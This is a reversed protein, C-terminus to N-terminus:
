CCLLGGRGKAEPAAGRPNSDLAGDAVPLPCRHRNSDHHTAVARAIHVRDLFELTQDAFERAAQGLVRQLAAKQLERSRDEAFSQVPQARACHVVHEGHRPHQERGAVDLVVHRRHEVGIGGLVAHSDLEAAIEADLWLQEGRRAIPDLSREGGPVRVQRPCLGQERHDAAAGGIGVGIAVDGLDRAHQPLAHVEAPGLDAVAPHDMRADVRQELAGSPEAEAADHHEGIEQEGADQDAADIGLRVLDGRPMGPDLEDLGTIEAVVREDEFREDLPDLADGGAVDVHVAQEAPVAIPDDPVLRCDARRLSAMVMVDLADACVPALMAVIMTAMMVMKATAVMVMVM